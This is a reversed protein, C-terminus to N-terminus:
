TNTPLQAEPFNTNKNTPMIKSQKEEQNLLIEKNQNDKSVPDQPLGPQGKAGSAEAEVEWTNPDCTYIVM